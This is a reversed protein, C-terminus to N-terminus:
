KYNTGGQVKKEGHSRSCKSEWDSESREPPRVGNVENAM